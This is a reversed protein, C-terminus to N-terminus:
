VPGVSRGSKKRWETELRVHQRHAELVEPPVTPLPDSRRTRQGQRAALHVTCHRAFDDVQADETLAHYRASEASRGLVNAVCGALLSPTYEFLWQVCNPDLPKRGRVPALLRAALEPYREHVM